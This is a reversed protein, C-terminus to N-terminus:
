IGVMNISSINYFKMFTQWYNKTTFTIVKDEIDSSIQADDSEVNTIQEVAAVDAPHM